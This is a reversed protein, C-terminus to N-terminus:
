AANKIEGKTQQPQTIQQDQMKPASNKRSFISTLGSLIGGKKEPKIGKKLNEIEALKEAGWKNDDPHIKPKEIIQINDGTVTQPPVAEHVTSGGLAQAAQNLEEHIKNEHVKDVGAGVEELTPDAEMAAGAPQLIQNISPTESNEPM